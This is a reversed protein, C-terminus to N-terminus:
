CDGKSACGAGANIPNLGTNKDTITEKNIFYLGAMGLAIMVTFGIIVKLVHSM